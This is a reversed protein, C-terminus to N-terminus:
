AKDKGYLSQLLEVAGEDPHWERMCECGPVTCKWVMSLMKGDVVGVVEIEAPMEDSLDVAERFIILRTTYYKVGKGGIAIEAQVREIVGLVHDKNRGCRWQKSDSLTRGDLNEM